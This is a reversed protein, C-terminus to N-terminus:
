YPRALLTQRETSSLRWGQGLVRQYFPVPRMFNRFNHGDIRSVRRPDYADLDLSNAAILQWQIARALSASFEFAPIVINPRPPCRNSIGKQFSMRLEDSIHVNMRMVDDKDNRM